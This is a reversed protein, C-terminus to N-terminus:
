KTLAQALCGAVEKYVLPPVMRGIREVQQQWTGTTVFDDPLSQIRRYEEITFKSDRLPHFASAASLNGSTATMTPAPRKNAARVLMSYAGPVIECAKVPRVPDKPVRKMQKTITYHASERVLQMAEECFPDLGDLGEGLTCIHEHPKPFMPEGDRVGMILLRHRAQPVGLWEACVVKAKVSYGLRRMESIIERLVGKNKGTALAPVNECLFGRPNLEGLLRLWEFFLDDTRQATDSYKRVEGWGKAGKGATSFSCCPPSGDLVDISTLGIAELIDSGHVQRIDRTDLYTTPFNKRYTNQAEPVFENAYVVKFGALKYGLSSGGGGSFTSAVTLGNTGEVKAVDAMTYPRYEGSM